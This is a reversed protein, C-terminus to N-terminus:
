RERRCCTGSAKPLLLRALRIARREFLPTLEFATKWHETRDEIDLIGM